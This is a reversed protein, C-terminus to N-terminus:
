EAERLAKLEEDTMNELCDFDQHGYCYGDGMGGFQILHDGLRIEEVDNWADYFVREAKMKKMM